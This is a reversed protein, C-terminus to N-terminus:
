SVRLYSDLPGNEMLESVIMPPESRTVLGELRVINPHNFQSLVIAEVLFELKAKDGANSRLTKISVRSEAGTLASRLLGTCIEGFDGTQKLENTQNLIFIIILM